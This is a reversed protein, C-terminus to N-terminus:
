KREGIFISAFMRQFMRKERIDLEKFQKRLTKLLKEANEYNHEYHIEIAIYKIYDPLNELNLNYEASEIDMKLIDPKYKKLQSDFSVADISESLRGKVYNITFSDTAIKCGSRHKPSYLLITGDSKDVAKNFLEVNNFNQAQLVKFNNKEPEYCIVKKADNKLAHYTFAGINAGCDLIVKNECFPYLEKYESRVENLTSEDTSNERYNLGTKKDVLINNM